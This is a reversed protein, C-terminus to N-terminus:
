SSSWCRLFLALGLARSAIPGLRSEPSCLVPEPEVAVVRLQPQRQKLLSACGTITGGTGVGAVFADIQGDTDRWIEEATTREHM